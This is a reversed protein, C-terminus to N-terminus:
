ARAENLPLVRKSVENQEQSYAAGECRSRHGQTPPTSKSAACQPTRRSCRRVTSTCWGPNRQAVDLLREQEDTTLTERTISSLRIDGLYRKVIELREPDLTVVRATNATAEKSQLCKESAAFLTKPADQADANCFAGPSGVV